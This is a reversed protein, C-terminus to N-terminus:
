PSAAGGTELLHTIAGALDGEFKLYAAMAAARDARGWESILGLDTEVAVVFEGLNTFPTTPPKTTHLTATGGFFIVFDLGMHSKPAAKFYIAALDMFPINGALKRSVGAIPTNYTASM